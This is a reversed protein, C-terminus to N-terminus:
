DKAAHKQELMEYFKLAKAMADVCRHNDDDAGTSVRLCNALGFGKLPRVVVGQALLDLFVREAQKESDMELMIFNAEPPVVKM